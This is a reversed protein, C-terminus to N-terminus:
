TGGGTSETVADIANTVTLYIMDSEKNNIAESWNVRLIYYHLANRDIPYTDSTQWYKPKANVQVNSYEGYTKTHTNELYEGALPANGVQIFTDDSNKMAPYISYSLPINTTHALQLIYNTNTTAMVAFVIDKRGNSSVDLNGLNITTTDYGESDKLWLLPMEIRTITQLGRQFNLWALTGVMVALLTTVALALILQRKRWFRAKKKEGRHDM